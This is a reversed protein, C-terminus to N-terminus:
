AVPLSVLLSSGFANACSSEVVAGLERLQGALAKARGKAGRREWERQAARLGTAIAQVDSPETWRVEGAVEGSAPNLVTATGSFTAVPNTTTM